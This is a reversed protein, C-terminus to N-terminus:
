QAVQVETVIFGPLTRRGARVYDQAMTLLLADFQEPCETWFFRAAEKRDSLVPVYSKRMTIARGGGHAGVRENEVKAAAKESAKADRLLEEAKERAELDASSARLAEQAAKHKEEAERRAADARAQRDREQKALFPALAKKCTAIALDAKGRDKQILPNYRAQVAAKGDDFPKNEAVRREDAKKVAARMDTILKGIADAQAQTEVPAGDLWNKAELYLGEIEDKSLDFPTPEILSPPDNAGIFVRPNSSVDFM